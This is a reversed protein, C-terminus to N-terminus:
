VNSTMEKVIRDVTDFHENFSADIHICRSRVASPLNEEVIKKADPAV